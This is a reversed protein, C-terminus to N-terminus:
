PLGEELPVCSIGRISGSPNDPVFGWLKMPNNHESQKCQQGERRCVFTVRMVALSTTCLRHLSLFIVSQQDTFDAYNAIAIALNSLLDDVGLFHGSDGRPASTCM